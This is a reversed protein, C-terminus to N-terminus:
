TDISRPLKRLWTRFTSGGRFRSLAFYAKVFVDQALDEADNPQQTLYRCNAIVHARHRLVLTEFHRLDDAPTARAREALTEDSLPKKPSEAVDDKPEQRSDGAVEM